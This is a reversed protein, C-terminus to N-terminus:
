RCGCRRRGTGCDSPLLRGVSSWSRVAAAGGAAPAAPGAGGGVNSLLDKVDKGELAQSCCKRNTSLRPEAAYRPSSLRGSRSWKSRHVQTLSWGHASFSYRLWSVKAATTLTNIKEATIELGDDALILAAYTTALESTSM